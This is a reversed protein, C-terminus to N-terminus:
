ERSKMLLLSECLTLDELEDIDLGEAWPIPFFHHGTGYFSPEKRFSEAHAFGIAGTPCFLKERDQSRSEMPASLLFDAEGEKLRFAWWPNMHEYPFCSLLTTAGSRVFEDYARCITEPKCLPCTAQFLAVVDVHAGLFKEIRNLEYLVVDSVGSYDDEKADRLFPVWAGYKRAIEAYRESDTSVYVYDFLGSKVVASIMWAMLPKGALPHINKDKIRKSGSRAPIVAIKVM